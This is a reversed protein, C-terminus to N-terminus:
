ALCEPVGRHVSTRVKETKFEQEGPLHASGTRPEARFQPCPILAVM